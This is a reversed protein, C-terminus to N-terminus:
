VGCASQCALTVGSAADGECSTVTEAPGGLCRTGGAADPWLCDCGSCADPTDVCTVGGDSDVVGPGSDSEACDTVAVCLEKGAKCAKSGCVFSGDPVDVRADADRNSGGDPPGKSGSELSADNGADPNSSDGGDPSSGSSAQGGCFALAVVLVPPGRGQM